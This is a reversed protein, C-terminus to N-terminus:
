SEAPEAVKASRVPAPSGSIWLTLGGGVLLVVGCALQGPTLVEDFVLHSLALAGFPTGLLMTACITVGLERIAVYYLPHAIGICLIGSLVLILNVQWPAKAVLGLDGWILAPFLLLLTTYLSIVAFSVRPGVDPVYKKVTVSYTAWSLSSCLVLLIALNVKAEGLDPRLLSLGITGIFSLALGLLFRGSRFLWREDPFFIAALLCSFLISSKSFLSVFAPLLWLLALPWATQSIVNPISPRLLRGLENRSLRGRERLRWALWPLLFLASSAYRYFNQTFPDYHAILYKVFVSPTCWILVVFALALIARQRSTM